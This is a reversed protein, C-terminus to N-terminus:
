QHIQGEKGRGMMLNIMVSFQVFNRLLCCLMSSIGWVSFLFSFLTSSLHIFLVIGDGRRIWLRTRERENIQGTLKIHKEKGTRTERCVQSIIFHGIQLHFSVFHEFLLVPFLFFIFGSMLIDLVIIVIICAAGEAGERRDTRGNM